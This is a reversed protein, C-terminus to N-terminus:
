IDNRMAPVLAQAGQWSHAFRSSKTATEDVVVVVSCEVGGGSGGCEVSWVGCEVVGCSCKFSLVLVVVVVVNCWVLQM